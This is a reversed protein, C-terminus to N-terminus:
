EVAPTLAKILNSFAGDACKGESEFGSRMLKNIILLQLEKLVYLLAKIPVGLITYLQLLAEMGAKETIETCNSAVGYTV